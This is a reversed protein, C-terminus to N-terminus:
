CPMGAWATTACVQVTRDELIYIRDLTHRSGSATIWSPRQSSIERLPWGNLESLGLQATDIPAVSRAEMVQQKMALPPCGHNRISFSVSRLCSKLRSNDLTEADLNCYTCDLRIAGPARSLGDKPSLAECGREWRAYLPGDSRRLPM